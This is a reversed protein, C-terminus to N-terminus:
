GFGGVQWEQSVHDQSDHRRIYARTDQFERETSKSRMHCNKSWPRKGVFGTANLQRTAAAKLRGVTQRIPQAGFRALWHVHHPGLSIIASDLKMVEIEAVLTTLVIRQQQPTLLVPLDVVERAARYRDAYKSADYTAEGRAAYRKPPPV